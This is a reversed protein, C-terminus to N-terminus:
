RTASGGSRSVSGATPVGSTSSGDRRVAACGPSYAATPHTRATKLEYPDCAFALEGSGFGMNHLRYRLSDVVVDRAYSMGNVHSIEDGYYTPIPVEVIRKGAEHLQIIVETDFDFDDSNSALPANQVRTLIRNGVYKYRPMGGKRAAGREMMRSGLVADTQGRELPALIQPLYEPAYQGDGHLLVVIDLGHEIAWQYGSKQNGGYGLNRSNRVVTLPLDTRVQGYGLGV